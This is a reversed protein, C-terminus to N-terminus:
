THVAASDVPHPCALDWSESLAGGGLMLSSRGPASGATVRHCGGLTDGSVSLGRESRAADPGPAPCGLRGRQRYQPSVNQPEPCTPTVPCALNALSRLLRPTYPANGRGGTLVVPTTGCSFLSAPHPPLSMADPWRGSGGLPCREPRSASICSVLTVGCPGAVKSAARVAEVTPLVRAISM